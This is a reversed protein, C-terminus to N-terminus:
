FHLITKILNIYIVSMFQIAKRKCEVQKMNSKLYANEREVNAGVDIQRENIHFVTHTNKDISDDISEIKISSYKTSNIDKLIERLKGTVTFAISLRSICQCAPGMQKNDPQM